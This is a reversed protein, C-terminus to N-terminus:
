REVQAQFLVEELPCQIQHLCLLHGTSAPFVTAELLGEFGLWEFHVLSCYQNLKLWALSGADVIQLFQVGSM